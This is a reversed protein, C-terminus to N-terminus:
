IKIKYLYPAKNKAGTFKKELRELVNMELIKKQFNTRVYEREFITEYIDQVEKITFTEPLLNFANFKKDIDEKLHHLAHKFIEDHDMILDPICHVNHWEISADIESKKPHIKQIDVLAYYGISIFRNTFWLYKDSNKIDKDYAASNAEILKDIFEKRKRNAKGFVEFQNLYIDNLGTRELLIRKAAVDIDEDQTIFGGQLAYFDGSFNLKSILVKLTQEEYGFIVCEISIQNIYNSDKLFDM